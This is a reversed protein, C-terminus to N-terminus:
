PNGGDPGPSAQTSGPASNTSPVSPPAEIPTAQLSKVERSASQEEKQMSEIEKVLKAQKELVYSLYEEPSVIVLQLPRTRTVNPGSKGARNDAVELALSVVDKEKLAPMAQKLDWVAGAEVAANTFAGLPHKQEPSQNLSYVIWANAVRYDDNARFALTLKKRVTAKENETPQVWEVEPAADPIVNVFYNVGGDYVYGHARETWQFRYVFSNTAPLSLRCERGSGDLQLPAQAGGEFTLAAAALPPDCQLKWTLASGELVELNLSDLEKAALGTYAPYEVRVRSQLLRPPPVVDLRYTESVADGLRVQYSFGQFLEAFKYEFRDPGVKPLPLQEWPGQAPKVMLRGQSPIKNAGIAEITVPSGQRVVQNGTIKVIRTRTPYSLASSPRTMRNLFANVYDTWQISVAACGLMVAASFGLIRRLERFNVIARFDL